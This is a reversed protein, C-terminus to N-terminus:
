KTPQKTSVEELPLYTDKTVESVKVGKPYVHEVFYDKVQYVTDDITVKGNKTVKGSSSVILMGGYYTQDNGNNSKEIMLGNKGFRDTIYIVEYKNGDTADIRKGTNDYLSGEKLWNTYASGKSYITILIVM